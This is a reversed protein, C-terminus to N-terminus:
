SVSVNHSGEEVPNAPDEYGFGSDEGPAEM